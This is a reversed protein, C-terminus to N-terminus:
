FRLKYGRRLMALLSVSLILFFTLVVAVSTALPIDSEGFFGFRFGDIMYLFPNFRSLTRWFSPLSHISYFVGSLFSLPMVIFNQFAALQDFKEAWIGAIMGMTGLVASGLLAFGIIVALSHVPVKVYWIALLFVGVGVLLGRVVAAGVYAAFLEFHSLPALLIFTINGSVKSQILSSSTNAFANQIVTMMMLGPILFATYEVGKFVEVRGSLVHSFIVLYLLATVVPAVLTQFAVKGFRLLEKYFLTFVGYM